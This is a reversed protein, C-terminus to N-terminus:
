QNNILLCEEEPLTNISLCWVLVGMKEGGGKKKLPAKKLLAVRSGRQLNGNRMCRERERERSPRCGLGWGGNDLM